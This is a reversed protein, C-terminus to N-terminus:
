VNHSGEEKGGRKKGVDAPSLCMCITKEWPPVSRMLLQFFLKEM